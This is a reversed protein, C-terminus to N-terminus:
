LTNSFDAWLLESIGEWVSAKLRMESLESVLRPSSGREEALRYIREKQDFSIQAEKLFDFLERQFDNGLLEPKREWQIVLEGTKEMGLLSVDLIQEGERWEARVPRGGALVRPEGETKWCPFQFAFRRNMGRADGDLGRVLVTRHGM